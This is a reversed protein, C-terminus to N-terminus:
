NELIINRHFTGQEQITGWELCVITTLHVHANITTVKGRLLHTFLTRCSRIGAGAIGRCWRVRRWVSQTRFDGPIMSMRDEDSVYWKSCVFFLNPANETVTTCNQVHANNSIGLSSHSFTESIHRKGWLGIHVKSQTTVLSHLQVSAKKPYLTGNLTQRISTRLMAFGVAAAICSVASSRSIRSPFLRRTM